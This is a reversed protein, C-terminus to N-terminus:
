YDNFAKVSISFELYKLTVKTIQSQNSQRPPPAVHHRNNTPPSHNLVSEPMGKAKEIRTLTNGTATPEESIDSKMRNGTVVLRHNTDPIM